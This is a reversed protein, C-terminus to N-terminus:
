SNQRSKYIIAFRVKCKSSIELNACIGDLLVSQVVTLKNQPPIYMHNNQFLLNIRQHAQTHCLFIVVAPLVMHLLFHCGM